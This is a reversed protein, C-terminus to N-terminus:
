GIARGRLAVMSEATQLQDFTRSRERREGGCAAVNADVGPCHRGVTVDDSLWRDIDGSLWLNDISSTQSAAFGLNSGDDCKLM